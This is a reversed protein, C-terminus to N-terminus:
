LLQTVEGADVWDLRAAVKVGYTARARPADSVLRVLQDIGDSADEAQALGVVDREDAGSVEAAGDGTGGDQWPPAEYDVSGEVAARLLCSSAALGNHDLIDVFQLMADGLGLLDDADYGGM